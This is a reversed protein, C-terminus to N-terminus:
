STTVTKTAFDAATWEETSKAISSGSPPAYGGCSICVQGSPGGGANGYRNVNLESVETFSQQGWQDM